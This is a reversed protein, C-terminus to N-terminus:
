EVQLESHCHSRGDPQETPMTVRDERTYNPITNDKENTLDLELRPPAQLPNCIPVTRVESTLTFRIWVPLHDSFNKREEWNVVGLEELLVDSPLPYTHM